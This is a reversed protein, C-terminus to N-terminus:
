LRRGHRTVSPSPCDESWGEGCAPWCWFRSNQSPISGREGLVVGGPHLATAEGPVWGCSTCRHGPNEPPHLLFCVLQRWKQVRNNECIMVPYSGSARPCSNQVPPFLPVTSSGEPLVPQSSRGASPRALHHSFAGQPSNKTHPWRRCHGALGARPYVPPPRQHCCGGLQPSVDLFQDLM